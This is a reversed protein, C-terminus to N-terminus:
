QRWHIPKMLKCHHRGFTEVSAGAQDVPLALWELSGIDGIPSIDAAPNGSLDLRRLRHLDQLATVEGIRNGCLGLNELTGLGALPWADSVENGDLLLVKLNPLWALAQVDTVGTNSLNLRELNYLGSLPWLDTVRNGSLDLDKLNGLGALPSLDAIANGSLDLRELATLREVGWVGSLGLGSADLRVADDAAVALLDAPRLNAIAVPTVLPEIGTRNEAAVGDWPGSRVQGTAEALPHMASGLYAVTVTDGAAVPSELTLWATAGSLAASTVGRAVGNVRVGYDTTSPSGFDDRPSPWALTVVPGNVSASAAAPGNVTVSPANSLARGDATCVSDSEGCGSPANLSVTVDGNGSPTLQFKFLVRAAGVRLVYGRTGGSVTLAQAVKRGSGTALEESFRVRLEFSGSGDHGGEPVNEFGATLATEAAERTVTVTYNATTTADEATVTVTITNTGEDLSVNRSSGDTSGDGDAIAFSAGSHNATATVQTNAITNGVSATYSKTGAAFTGIDVGSLALSSLTADTSAADPGEVTVSLTNSLAQGDATCISNLRSCGSAARLRVSVDDNGSPTLAFTFLDRTDGVRHVKGRTAGAVSIASSVKSRSGQALEESFRVSLDFPSSGDHGDPVNEFRATLAPVARTVTVTYTGTTDGDEATVTVTIANAGEALAVTRSSGDTSGDGDAITVSAGAQNATATVQTSAIANGVSASYTTTGTAFTGIDIGSLSLSSLTADASVATRMVTVTYTQTTTGDEATVTVTIANVGEALAVTRSTGDTSGDSDAITVGAGAHNAAVTVQTSAIANGVSATYATTGAAFTGVDIGSLALASLTADTSATERTVTMTYTQTTTSDEATVTVTITNSGEALSVTRSAGATSGNGDAIAISAGAHNASATVQTSAVDHAVTATYSTTGAAFTGIDIGSLALSSLTADTSAAERTVTVTYTGTTDGDEATVTVTITNTGEDLSVNRSTGDTSGDGDAITVSAGSHNASATVQTSAVDYAVTATYSKTGAAFTGIDIGSLALSSLTADASGTVSGGATSAVTCTQEAFRLCVETTSGDPLTAAYASANLSPANADLWAQGWIYRDWSAVWAADALPLTEGAWELVLGAIAEGRNRVQFMVGDSYAMVVQVQYASGEGFDFAHDAVAGLDPHAISSYGRYEDRVEVTATSLWVPDVSSAMGTQWTTGVADLGDADRIAGSDPVDYTIGVTTGPALRSALTLVIDSGSADVDTVEVAAYGPTTVVRFASEPPVSDTDVPEDYVLKVQDGAAELRVLTPGSNGARHETYAREVATGYAANEDFGYTVLGEPMKAAPAPDRAATRHHTLRTSLEAVKAPESEALNTKEYPDEAINYLQLKSNWRRGYSVGNRELLKWDGVRIVKRSHALEQRPSEAGAAIAQWADLGDLPLGDTTSAGALGALTPFVDVVHLLADSESGEPIRDPWRMAAPVRIGGEHFSGKLGRYPANSGARETGGNDNLFVVLTDDLMGKDELADLVWGFADDLAKVQARQVPYETHAYRDLYEQPATGEAHAANFALYLFFPDRGDHRGILQVAEEAMLFTSYGREVVPRGNRHWDLANLHRHNGYTITGSYMGYHHDFGRQLPLHGLHWQGLHWKGIAWTEYGVDRLAEAMLREDLLVGVDLGRSPAEDVGGTKWYHRGTLLASRTPSCGPSAYFQTLKVGENAIRDLNPTGVETGGNFGLQGWGLDDTVVVLINPQPASDQATTVTGAMAAALGVALGAIWVAARSRRSDPRRGPTPWRMSARRTLRM